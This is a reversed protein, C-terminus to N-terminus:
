FRYKGKKIVCLRVDVLLGVCDIDRIWREKIAKLVKKATVSSDNEFVYIIGEQTVVFVRNTGDKPDQFDLPQNFTLNPFAKQIKYQSFLLTSTSLLLLIFLYLNKM